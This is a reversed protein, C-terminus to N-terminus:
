WAVYLDFHKSGVYGCDYCKGYKGFPTAVIVKKRKNAVSSGVVIYDDKDCVFGNKDVHRGPIKLGLGPMSRQSYWTYTYGRWRLRGARRMHRASYKKVAKKSSLYRKKVSLLEGKYKVIATTKGQKVVKLKTNRKVRGIKQTAYRVTTSATVTTGAAMIAFIVLFLLILKTTKKKM